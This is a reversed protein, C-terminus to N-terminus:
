GGRRYLRAIREPAVGLFWLALCALNRRSRRRWGERRWREASTVFPADLAALRRRGLRRVIDVDEMIPIPRFGGIRDYLDRHILLGQDGYPLALWRCRRAVWRELRRAEPATDDLAFRFYGARGANAPDAVFRTATQHWGPGPLTDAHLFLLWPADGPTTAAARAGAALQTGRGRPAGTVWAGAATAITRTADTSGGDAVIIAAVRGQLATLTRALGAEADLTPIVVTLPLRPEHGTGTASSADRDGLCTKGPNGAQRPDLPPTFDSM